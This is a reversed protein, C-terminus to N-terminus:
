SMQEFIKPTKSRWYGLWVTYKNESTLPVCSHFDLHRQMSSKFKQMQTKM